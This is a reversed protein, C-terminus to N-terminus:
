ILPDLIFRREPASVTAPAAPQNIGIGAGERKTENAAQSPSQLEAPRRGCASTALVAAALTAFVLIRCGTM